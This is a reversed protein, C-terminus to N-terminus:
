IADHTPLMRHGSSVKYPPLATRTGNYSTFYGVVRTRHPKDITYYTALNYLGIDLISRARQWHHTRARAPRRASACLGLACGLRGKEHILSLTLQARHRQAQPDHTHSM